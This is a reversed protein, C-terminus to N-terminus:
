DSHVQKIPRKFYFTGEDENILVWGDKGLDNLFSQTIDRWKRDSEQMRNQMDKLSLSHTDSLSNTGGPLQPPVAVKYEWRTVCPTACCSALLLTGAAFMLTIFKKM